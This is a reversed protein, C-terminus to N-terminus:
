EAQQEKAMKSISDAAAGNMVHTTVSVKKYKKEIKTKLTNLKEEANERIADDANTIVTYPMETFTAPTEYSHVLILRSHFEQALACAYDVANSANKSFDTPCLIIKM